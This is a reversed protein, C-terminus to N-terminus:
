NGKRRVRVVTQRVVANNARMVFTVPLKVGRQARWTVRVRYNLNRSAGAALAGLSRCRNGALKLARKRLNVCIRTNNSTVGGLNSAKVRINVVKGKRRAANGPKATIRNRTQNLGSGTLNVDEVGSESTVTVKATQTATSGPTFTVSVQCNTNPDMNRICADEGNLSYRDASPGSLTIGTVKNPTEGGSRISIFNTRPVGINSRGFNFDNPDVQMAPSTYRMLRATGVSSGDIGTFAALSIGNNAVAFGPDDSYTFDGAPTFPQFSSNSFRNWAVQDQGPLLGPVTWGIVAANSVNVAITPDEVAPVVQTANVWGQPNGNSLVRSSEVRQGGGNMDHVWTMAPQGGFAKTM